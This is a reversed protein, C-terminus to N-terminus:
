LMYKYCVDASEKELMEQFRKQQIKEQSRDNKVEEFTAKGVFGIIGGILGGAVFGAPGVVAGTM